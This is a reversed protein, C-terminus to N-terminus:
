PVTFLSPHRTNQASDKRQKDKGLGKPHASSSASRRMPRGAPLNPWRTGSEDGCDRRRPARSPETRGLYHVGDVFDHGPWKLPRTNAVADKEVLSWRNASVGTLILSFLSGRLDGLTWRIPHKTREVSADNEQIFECPIWYFFAREPYVPGYKARSCWNSHSMQHHFGFIAFYPRQNALFSKKFHFGFIAFYPRQNALFSKKSFLYWGRDVPFVHFPLPHWDRSSEFIRAM